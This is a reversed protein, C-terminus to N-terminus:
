TVAAQCALAAAACWGPAGARDQAPSPSRATPLRSESKNVRPEPIEPFAAMAKSLLPPPVMGPEDASSSEGSGEFARAWLLAPALSHSCNSSNKKSSEHGILRSM